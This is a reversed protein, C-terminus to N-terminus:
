VLTITTHSQPFKMGRYLLYMDDVTILGDIIRIEDLFGSFSGGNHDVDNGFTLNNATDAVSTIQAGSLIEINDVYITCLVGDFKVCICHWQQDTWKFGPIYPPIYVTKASGSSGLVSLQEPDNNVLTIEWGTSDATNLKRSLLREYGVPNTSRCKVWLMATFTSGVNLNNSVACDVWNSVGSQFDLNDSGSFAGSNYATPPLNDARRICDIDFRASDRTRAAPTGFDPDDGCHAVFRNDLYPSGVAGNFSTDWVAELGFAEDRAPQSAGAIGWLIYITKTGSPLPGCGVWLELAGSSPTANPECKVVELPLRTAEEYPDTVARIDGGDLLAGTSLNLIADRFVTSGGSDKNLLLPYNVSIGNGIDSSSIDVKSAYHAGFAFPGEGGGRRIRNFKLLRAM